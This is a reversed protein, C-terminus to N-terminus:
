CYDYIFEIFVLIKLPIKKCMPTSPINILYLLIILLNFVLAICSFVLAAILISFPDINYVRNIFNNFTSLKGDKPKPLFVTDIINFPNLVFTNRDNGGRLLLSLCV